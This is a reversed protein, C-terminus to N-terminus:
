GFASTSSMAILRGSKQERMLRSAACYLNFAGKLHVAIVADWEAENMNFIMRDRLIGAVHVVIDIKDFVDVAQQVMAAGEEYIAVNGLNAVAKGGASKIEDVVQQAPQADPGEGSLSVGLDNVVVACGESALALAIGRGIGRGAGTVLAVKNQLRNM